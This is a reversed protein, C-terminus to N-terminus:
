SGENSLPSLQCSFSEQSEFHFYLEFSPIMRSISNPFIRIRVRTNNCFTADHLAMMQYTYNTLRMETNLM